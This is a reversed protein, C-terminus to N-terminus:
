KTTLVGRLADTDPGARELEQNANLQLQWGSHVKTVSKTSRASLVTLNALDVDRDPLVRPLQPFLTVNTSKLTSVGMSVSSATM